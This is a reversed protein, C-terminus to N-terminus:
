RLKEFKKQLEILENYLGKKESFELKAYLERAKFYIKRSKKINCRKLEREAKLL